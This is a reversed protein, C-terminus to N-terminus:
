SSAAVSACECVGVEPRSPPEFPPFIRAALSLALRRESIARAAALARQFVFLDEGHGDPAVAPRSPEFKVIRM